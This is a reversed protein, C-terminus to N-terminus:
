FRVCHNEVPRDSGWFTSFASFVICSVMYNHMIPLSINLFNNVTSFFFTTQTSCLTNKKEIQKDNQQETQRAIWGDTMRDYGDM